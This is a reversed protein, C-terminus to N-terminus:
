SLVIKKEQQIENLYCYVSVVIFRIMKRGTEWVENM